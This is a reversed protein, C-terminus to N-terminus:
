PCGLHNKKKKLKHSSSAPLPLETLKDGKEPSSQSSTLLSLTLWM